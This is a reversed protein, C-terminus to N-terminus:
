LSHTVEESEESGNKLFQTDFQYMLFNRMIDIHNLLSKQVELQTMNRINRGLLTNNDKILRSSLFDAAALAKDDKGTISSDISLFGFRSIGPSSLTGDDM